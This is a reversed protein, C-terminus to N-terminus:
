DFFASFIREDAIHIGGTSPILDAMLRPEWGMLGNRIAESNGLMDLPHHPNWVFVRCQHKAAATSIIENIHDDCFSYGTVLLRVGGANVAAEFMSQYETLLWSGAIKERKTKGVVMIPVGVSNRWTHSGHLKLVRITGSTPATLTGTSPADPIKPAAFQQVYPTEFPISWNQLLQELITDQNLTVILSGRFKGIFHKLTGYNVTKDIINFMSQAFLDDMDKFTSTVATIIAQRDAADYMEDTLVDEMVIEFSREKLLAKRVRERGQLNGNTFVDAWVESALRGGWNKSFGAGLLMINM